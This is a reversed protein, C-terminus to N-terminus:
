YYGEFFSMWLADETGEPLRTVTTGVPKKWEAKYKAALTMGARKENVSSHKGQWVYVKDYMELIYSDSSELMSKKM